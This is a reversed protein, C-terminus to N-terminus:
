SWEERDRKDQRKTVRKSIIISLEYLLILPLAVITQSM